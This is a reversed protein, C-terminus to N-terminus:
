IGKKIMDAISEVAEGLLIKIPIDRLCDDRWPLNEENLLNKIEMLKEGLTMKKQDASLIESFEVHFLLLHEPDLGAGLLPMIIISAGDSRGGGAYVDRNKVITRKTGILPTAIDARSRMGEAIGGKVVVSITSDDTPAGDEDLGSLRYLTYGRLKEIAPQLRSVAAWDKQTLNEATFGLAAVAEFLVGKLAPMKRSTGVTVTKAQHRIADVPRSLEDIARSLTADLLDPPWVGRKDWFDKRFEEHAIKGTAYKLLLTLDTATDVNLNAVHGISRWNNFTGAFENVIGHLRTDAISEFVSLKMEEHRTLIESLKIRFDRLQSAQEDLSVAAYYGWLHGAITNLIISIPFSARPVKIVHDAVGDFRTEGEDTIVVARSAHAKFITTDKVIDELVIEPSGAAMVLILPEASLDIHKKDEIIDSSITKYCLESLKIRVEDAAVKNTGSGVLAWHRKLRVLDWATRRIENALRLVRNMLSPAHELAELQRLIADEPMSGLMKAFFLALLYGAVIQAYFAKTSAVSMEVDRGDSTYFVGHAKTTIDSQRRNVIAIVSAGKERAIAVARNTDTTTGSQTVAIVLSRALEDGMVFGSLDTAKIAQINLEKGKLCAKLAEAIAAGAVAATGQGIVFINRTKGEVLDKQSNGPVTEAGFNFTVKGDAIRYKGRLTKRVSSPADMIEKIFYHRHAGRDIDRTTIEARRIDRETLRLPHGDYSIAEIGSLGDGRDNHLIFIQGTTEPDGELRPREGDMKIFQPTEEILGYVESAFIYQHHSLGVFLSQGSGRLALYIKEPELNSEMAIAHSGEFTSVAKRFAEQLDDGALLYREIQLPIAKADTSLRPDVLRGASENAAMIQQYNDVDGNLTANIRWNGKGYRPYFEELLTMGSPLLTSNNIPHCNPINIAGVSAWRTHALYLDDEDGEALFAKLISDGAIQQRLERCNKGLEGTVSATKYTFAVTDKFLNISGNMLDGPTCRNEFETLLGAHRIHTVARDLADLSIRFTIILGASDRGRIELRDMANLMSNLRYFKRFEPLSGLRGSLELIKEQNKLLDEKLEWLVDKLTILRGSVIELDGASMEGARKELADEQIQIFGDIKEAFRRLIDLSGDQGFAHQLDIDQKITYLAKEMEAPAEAGLSDAASAEALGKASIAEFISTFREILGQKHKTGKIAVIGALGCFLVDPVIPFFVISGEPVYRPNRGVCM